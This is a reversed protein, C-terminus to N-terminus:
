SNKNKYWPDAQAISLIWVFCLFRPCVLARPKKIYFFGHLFLDERSKQKM